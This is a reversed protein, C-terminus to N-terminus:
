SLTLIIGVGISGGLGNSVVMHVVYEAIGVKFLDEITNGVPPDNYLIKHVM